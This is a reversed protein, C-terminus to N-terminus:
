SFTIEHSRLLLRNTLSCSQNYYASTLGCRLWEYLNGLIEDGKIYGSPENENGLAQCLVKNMVWNLVTWMRVGHTKIICKLM